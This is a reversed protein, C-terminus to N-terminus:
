TYFRDIYFPPLPGGIPFRRGSYDFRGFWAGLAEPRVESKPDLGGLRLGSNLSEFSRVEFKSSQSLTLTLSAASRLLYSPEIRKWLQLVPIESDEGIVLARLYLEAENM